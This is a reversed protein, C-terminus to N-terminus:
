ASVQEIRASKAYASTLAQMILYTWIQKLVLIHIVELKYVM